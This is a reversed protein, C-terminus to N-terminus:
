ASLTYYGLVAMDPENVLVFVTAVQKKVDQSAQRQLYTDLSIEGCSFDGRRHVRKNLPQIRLVM